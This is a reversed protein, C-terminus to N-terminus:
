LQASGFESPQEAVEHNVFSRTTSSSSPLRAFPVGCAAAIKAANLRCPIAQPAALSADL